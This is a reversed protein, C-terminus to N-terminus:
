WRIEFKRSSIWISFLCKTTHLIKVPNQFWGTLLTKPPWRNKVFQWEDLLASKSIMSYGTQYHAEFQILFFVSAESQPPCRTRTKNTECCFEDNKTWLSQSTNKDERNTPLHDSGIMDYWSFFRLCQMNIDLALGDVAGIICFNMHRWKQAAKPCSSLHCGCTPIPLSSTSLYLFRRAQGSWPLPSLDLCRSHLLVCPCMSGCETPYQHPTIMSFINLRPWM